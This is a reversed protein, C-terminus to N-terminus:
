FDGKEDAHAQKVQADRFKSMIQGITKGITKQGDISVVTYLSCSFRAWDAKRKVADDFMDKTYDDPFHLSQTALCSTVSDYSRYNFRPNASQTLNSWVTVQTELKLNWIKITKQLPM